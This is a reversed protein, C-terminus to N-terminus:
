RDGGGFFLSQIENEEINVLDGRLSHRMLSEMKAEAVDALEEVNSTESQIEVSLDYARMSVKEAHNRRRRQDSSSDNSNSDNGSETTEEQETM